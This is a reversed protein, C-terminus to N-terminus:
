VAVAGLVHVRPVEGHLVDPEVGLRQVAAPCVVGGGALRTLQATSQPVGGALGARDDRGGRETREGVKRREIRLDIRTSKIRPEDGARHRTRRTRRAPLPRGARRPAHFQRMGGKAGSLNKLRPSVSEASSLPRITAERAQRSPPPAIIKGRLM